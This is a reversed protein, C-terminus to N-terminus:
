SIIKNKLDPLQFMGLLLKFAETSTIKYGEDLGIKYLVKSHKLLFELKSETRINRTIYVDKNRYDKELYVICEQPILSNNIKSLEKVIKANVNFVLELPTLEIYSNTPTFYKPVDKTIAGRTEDFKLKGNVHNKYSHRCCLLLSFASISENDNIGYTKADMIEKLDNVNLLHSSELIFEDKKSKNRKVAKKDKLETSAHRKLFMKLTSEKINLTGSIEKYKLGKRFLELAKEIDFTAKRGSM